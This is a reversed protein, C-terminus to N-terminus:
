GKTKGGVVGKKKQLPKIKKQLRKRHRRSQLHVNMDIATSPSVHCILCMYGSPSRNHKTSCFNYNDSNALTSIKRNFADLHTREVHLGSESSLERCLREVIAVSRHQGSKCGIGINQLKFQLKLKSNSLFSLIEAKLTEYVNQAGEDEWLKSALVEDVGTKDKYGIVKYAATKIGRVDFYMDLGLPVGIKHSFSTLMVNARVKAHKEPKTKSVMHLEGHIDGRKRKRSSSAGPSTRGYDGGDWDERSGDDEM